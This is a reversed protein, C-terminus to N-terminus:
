LVLKNFGGLGTGLVAKSERFTRVTLRQPNETWLTMFYSQSEDLKDGPVLENIIATSIDMGLIRGVITFNRAFSAWDKSGRHPTGFFFVGITCKSINKIQEDFSMHSRRLVEKTVIGGLSHAIFILDRDPANGRERVLDYLLNGSHTFITGQNVPQFGKTVVTDYGFTFVRAQPFDV